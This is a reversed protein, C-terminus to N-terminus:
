RRRSGAVEDGAGVAGGTGSGARSGPEGVGVDQDAVQREPVWRCTANTAARHWEGSSSSSSSGVEPTSARARAAATPCWGRGPRRRRRAHQHGRVVHLLRSCHSRSSSIDSPRRTAWPLSASTTPSVVAIATCVSSQARAKSASLAAPAPSGRRGRRAPRRRRGPAAAGLGRPQWPMAAPELRNRRGDLLPHQHESACAGAGGSLVVAGARLRGRLGAPPDEVLRRPRVRPEVDFETDTVARFSLQSSTVANRRM